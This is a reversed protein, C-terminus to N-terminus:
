QPVPLHGATPPFVNFDTAVSWGALGKNKGTFNEQEQQSGARRALRARPLASPGCPSPALGQAASGGHLPRLIWTDFILSKPPKSRLSMIFQGHMKLLNYYM